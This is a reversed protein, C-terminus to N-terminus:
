YLKRLILVLQSTSSNHSEKGTYLANGMQFVRTWSEM